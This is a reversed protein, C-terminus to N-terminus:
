KGDAEDMLGRVWKAAWWTAPIGLPIGLWISTVPSIAPLGLSIGILGLLFLNIAVAAATFPYLVLALKKVSWTTDTAMM